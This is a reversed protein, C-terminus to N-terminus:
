QPLDAEARKQLLEKSSIGFDKLIQQEVTPGRSKFFLGIGFMLVPAFRLLKGM